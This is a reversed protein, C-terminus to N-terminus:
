REAYFVNQTRGCYVVRLLSRDPKVNRGSWHDAAPCPDEIEGAAWDNALIWAKEWAPRYTDWSVTRPWGKPKTGDPALARIWRHRRSRAPGKIGTCYHKIQDLFTWDPDREARTEWRRKLVWAIAAHDRSSWDAESVMARALWVAVEEDWQEEPLVEDAKTISTTLLLVMLGFWKSVNASM